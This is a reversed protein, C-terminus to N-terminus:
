GDTSSYGLSLAKGRRRRRLRAAFAKAIITQAANRLDKTYSYLDAVTNLPREEANGMQPFSLVIEDAGPHIPFPFSCYHSLVMALKLKGYFRM